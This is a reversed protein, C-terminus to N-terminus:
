PQDLVVGTLRATPLAQHVELLAQALVQPLHRTANDYMFQLAIQGSQGIGALAATCGVAGLREIIADQDNDDAALAYRLIFTQDM